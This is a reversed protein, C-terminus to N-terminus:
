PAGEPVRKLHDAVSLADAIGVDHHENDAM